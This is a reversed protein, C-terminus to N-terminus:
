GEDLGDGSRLESEVFIVIAVGAGSNKRKVVWLDSAWRRTREVSVPFGIWMEWIREEDVVFGPRVGCSIEKRRRKSLIVFPETMCIDYVPVVNVYIGPNIVPPATVPPLPSTTLHASGSVHLLPTLQNKSGSHINAGNEFPGTLTLNSPSPTM